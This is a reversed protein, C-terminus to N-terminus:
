HQLLAVDLIAQVERIVRPTVAGRLEVHRTPLRDLFDVLVVGEDPDDGLLVELSNGLSTWALWAVILGTNVTNLEDHSLM